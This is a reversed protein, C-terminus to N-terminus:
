RIRVAPYRASRSGDRSAARRRHFPATRAGIGLKFSPVLFKSSACGAPTLAFTEEEEVATWGLTEEALRLGIAMSGFLNARSEAKEAARGPSRWPAYLRRFNQMFGQRAHLM